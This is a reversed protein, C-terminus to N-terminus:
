LIPLNFYATVGKLYNSVQLRKVELDTWTWLGVLIMAVAVAPLTQIYWRHVPLVQLLRIRRSVSTRIFLAFCEEGCEYSNAM